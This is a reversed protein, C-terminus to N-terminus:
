LDVFEKMFGRQQPYPGFSTPNSAKWGTNLLRTKIFRTKQYPMDKAERGLAEVWIEAICVKYRKFYGPGRYGPVRNSIWISREMKNMKYWDPPLDWDLYDDIVPINPDSETHSQQIEKAVAILDSSLNLPEGAKFMAVAEAWIQARLEETLQTHVDAIIPVAQTLIPWFRRNGDPDNLFEMVNTSGMFICQRAYEEVRRGYAPRFRDSRKSVFSKVAEVSATRFSTLEAWEMIWVGQLDEMSEKKNRLDISTDSFWEGGLKGVLTSKGIGEAGVFIIMNDFKVGPRYIRAVAATFWKRSVQRTYESNEAGLFANFLYEIRPTKDWVLGELYSRVPHFSAKDAAISLADMIKEKGSIGYTTEFHDRLYSDDTDKFMTDAAPGRWAPAKKLVLRNAFSDFAFCGKVAPDNELILRMNKLSSLPKNQKDIEMSGYWKTGGEIAEVPQVPKQLEGTEYNISSFEQQASVREAVLHERVSPDKRAFEEMLLFSKRKYIPLDMNDEAEGFKHLRVLDFSNVTQGSAPDSHHNSHAHYDNYVVLGKATQSHTYTFRDPTDTSIYVGPIVNNIASYVDHVSCWAGVVGPKLAPDGLKQLETYRATKDGVAAPWSSADRWDVYSRLIADASVVFGGSHWSEFFGDVSTTPWFMLRNLDYSTRDINEIDLAQALKRAIPEYEEANVPRDLPFLVRYRPAAPTHSHTTYYMSAIPLAKLRSILDTKLYDADLAVLQKHMVASKERRGGQMYAGVFGGQDKQKTRYEPTGAQFQALTEITRFTTSCRQVLRSWYWQENKWSKSDFSPGVAIDIILDQM